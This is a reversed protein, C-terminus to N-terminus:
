SLIDVNLNSKLVLCLTRYYFFVYFLIFKIIIIIIIIIIGIYIFM